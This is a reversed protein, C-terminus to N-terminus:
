VFFALCLGRSAIAFFRVQNPAAEEKEITAEDDSESALDSEDVNSGSGAVSVERSLSRSSTTTSTGAPGSMGEMLWSSYKETQGVIFNLHMDLAKKRKEALRSHQKYQVIQHGSVISCAPRSLLLRSDVVKEVNTWFHRVEKAVNSAIRKLRVVEEKEARQEKQLRQTHQKAVSAALQCVLPFSYM